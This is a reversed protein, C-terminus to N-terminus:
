RFIRELLTSLELSTSFGVHRRLTSSLFTGPTLDSFYGIYPEPLWKILLLPNSIYDGPYSFPEYQFWDTIRKLKEQSVENFYPEISGLKVLEEGYINSLTDINVGPYLVQFDKDEQTSIRGLSVALASCCYSLGFNTELKILNVLSFLGKDRYYDLYTYTLKYANPVGYIQLLNALRQDDNLRRHKYRNSLGTPLM